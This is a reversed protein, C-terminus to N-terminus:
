DRRDMALSDILDSREEDSLHRQVPVPGLDRLFRERLAPDSHLIRMAARLIRDPSMREGESM